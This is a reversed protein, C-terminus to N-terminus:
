TEQIWTSSLVDVTRGVIHQHRLSRETGEATSRAYRQPQSSATVARSAPSPVRSATVACRDSHRCRWGIAEDGAMNTPRVHSIRDDVQIWSRIESRHSKPDKEVSTMSSLM